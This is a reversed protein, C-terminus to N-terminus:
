GCSRDSQYTTDDVGSCKDQCDPTGDLDTDLDSQGCGCVGAVSKNPDVSCADLCDPVGDGDTDTEERGCGCMAPATKSADFPCRDMCNPTGDGDADASAAACACSVADQGRDPKNPCFDICDPMGDGDSDDLDSRDCGCIAQPSVTTPDDCEMAQPPDSCSAADCGSYPGGTDPKDVNGGDMRSALLSVGFRGCGWLSCLAFLCLIYLRGTRRPQSGVRM